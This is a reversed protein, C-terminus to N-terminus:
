WIFFTKRKFFYDSIKLSRKKANVLPILSAEDDRDINGHVMHM